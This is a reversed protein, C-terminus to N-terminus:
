RTTEEAGLLAIMQTRARAVAMAMSGLDPCVVAGDALVVRGVAKSERARVAAKALQNQAKALKRDIYQFDADNM